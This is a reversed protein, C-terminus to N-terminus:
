HQGFAPKTGLRGKEDRTKSEPNPGTKARGPATPANAPKRAAQLARKRKQAWPKYWLYVGSVVFFVISLATFYYLLNLWGGFIKGTHLDDVVKGWHLPKRDPVETKSFTKKTVAFGQVSEAAKVWSGDAEAVLIAGHDSAIEVPEGDVTYFTVVEREKYDKEEKPLSGYWAVLPAFTVPRDKLGFHKDEMMLFGTTGVVLLIAALALGIYSHLSKWHKFQMKM